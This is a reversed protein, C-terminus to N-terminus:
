SQLYIDGDNGMSNSPDGSGTYISVPTIWVLQGSSNVSLVKGSDASSYSPLENPINITKNSAANTTFTDVNTGGKQITITSNNASVKAAGASANSRITSLDSIADQKGNWTSINSSTIGAAASASFVPDTETVIYNWSDYSISDDSDFTIQYVKGYELCQFYLSASSEYSTYVFDYSYIGNDIPIRIVPRYGESILNELYSYTCYIPLSFEQPDINDLNNTQLNQSEIVVVKDPQVATDAKGLSIQVASALDTAPIGGSPKSYTGTNKTFGWGSVTSETVAAPITPKNLIVGLGTTANWDAQVNSVKNNWASKETDTVLRHTADDSLAALTTPVARKVAQLVQTLGTSNLFDAM